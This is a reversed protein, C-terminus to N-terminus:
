FLAYLFPADGEAPDSLVLALVLLATVLVPALIWPWNERFFRGLLSAPSQM